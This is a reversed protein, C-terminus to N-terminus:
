AVLSGLACAAFAIATGYRLTQFALDANHRRQEIFDLADEPPWELRDLQNRLSTTERVARVCVWAFVAVYSALVVIVFM